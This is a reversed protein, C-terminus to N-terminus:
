VPAPASRRPNGHRAPCTLRARGVPAVRAPPRCPPPRRAAWRPRRPRRPHPRPRRHGPRPPPRPPQVLLQGRGGLRPRRPRRPPRALGVASRSRLGLPSSRTSRSAAPSQRHRCRPRAAAIAERAQASPPAAASTTLPRRRAAILDPSGTAASSPPPPDIGPSSAPAPRRRLGIVCHASKAMDPPRNPCRSRGGIPVASRTLVPLAAAPPPFDCEHSVAVVQPGCGLAFAIETASPLLSAIRMPGGPAGALAPARSCSLPRRRAGSPLAAPPAATFREYVEDCGSQYSSSNSRNRTSM